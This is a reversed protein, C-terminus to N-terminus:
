CLAKARSHVRSKRTRKAEQVMIGVWQNKAGHPQPVIAQKSVCDLILFSPVRPEASVVQQVLAEEDREQRCCAVLQSSSPGVSSGAFGASSTSGQAKPGAKAGAESLSSQQSQEQRSLQYSEDGDSGKCLSTHSGIGRAETQKDRAKSPRQL